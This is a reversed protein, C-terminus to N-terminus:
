YKFYWSPFALDLAADLSIMSPPITLTIIKDSDAVLDMNMPSIKLSKTIDKKVEQHPDSWIDELGAFIM